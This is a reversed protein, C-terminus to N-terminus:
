RLGDYGTTCTGTVFGQGQAIKGLFYGPLHRQDIILITLSEGIFFLGLVESCHLIYGNCFEGVSSLSSLNYLPASLRLTDHTQVLYMLIINDTNLINM